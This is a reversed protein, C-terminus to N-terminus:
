ANLTNISPHGSNIMRKSLPFVPKVRSGRYGVCVVCLSFQFIRFVFFSSPSFPFISLPFLWTKTKEKRYTSGNGVTHTYFVLWLTYSNADVSHFHRPFGSIGDMSLVLHLAQLPVYIM